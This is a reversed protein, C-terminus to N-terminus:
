RPTRRTPLASHATIFTTLERVLDPGSPTYIAEQYGAAALRTLSRAIRAPEGIMTKTDIHDLLGRDRDPLHTVHGEFINLHREDAPATAELAKRWTQGGPMADVAEAGGRAYANHWDVVRWPGVAERVRDSGPNERPDLVTGSLITATPLTPHPPGIVGDALDTAIATGRPGFVSLWLPVDLPRPAALGDAHLMRVPKGDVTTTEGALLSRLATVYTTLADLTMPRQGVTLRATFGTGFCALFRGNSIRDITAIASAMAMVSRQQPILVATGLGIRTTRTAALALHVFPDEWLAASDYIWIRTYGLREALVALDAFDPGPPLGCSLAVAPQELGM